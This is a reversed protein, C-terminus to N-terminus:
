VKLFGLQHKLQNFVDCSFLKLIYYLIYIYLQEGRQVLFRGKMEKFAQPGCFALCTFSFQEFYICVIIWMPFFIWSM